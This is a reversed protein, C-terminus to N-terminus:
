PHYVYTYNVRGAIDTIRVRTCRLKGARVLKKLIKATKREGFGLREGIESATLGEIENTDSRCNRLDELIDEITINVSEEM